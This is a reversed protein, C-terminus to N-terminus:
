ANRRAEAKRMHQVLGKSQTLHYAGCDDCKYTGAGVRKRSPKHQIHKLVREAELRTAYSQKGNTPCIKM